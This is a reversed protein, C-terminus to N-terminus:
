PTPAEGVDVRGESNTNVIFVQAGFPGCQRADRWFNWHIYVKGNPSIIQPPPNPHDGLTWAIDVAEADYSLEGSSRVINVAEFKGSKADIVFELTTQLTPDHLPHGMPVMQTLMVLYQDAWRAHIHRHLAAMYGAYVARRANVATHNGPKVESIMNELSARMLKQRRAHNAFLARKRRPTTMDTTPKQEGFVDNFRSQDVRFLNMQEAMQEGPDGKAREREREPESPTKVVPSDSFEKLVFPGEGVEREESAEPKAEAQASDKSPTPAVQEVPAPRPDRKKALAIPQPERSGEPADRPVESGEINTYSLNPTAADEIDEPVTDGPLADKMTTERARTEETTKNAEDALFKADTPEEANNRQAVVQEEKPVEIKEVEPPKEEEKEEEQTKKDREPEELEPPEEREAFIAELESQTITRVTLDQAPADARRQVEPADVDLPRVVWPVLTFLLLVHVAVSALAAVALGGTSSPEHFTLM